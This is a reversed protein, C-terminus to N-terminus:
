SLRVYWKAVICFTVSLCVLSLRCLRGFIRGITRNALFNLATPLHTREKLQFM